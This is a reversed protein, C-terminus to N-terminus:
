CVKAVVSLIEFNGTAKIERFCWQNEESDKEWIGM